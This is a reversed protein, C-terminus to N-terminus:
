SIPVFLLSLFQLLKRSKRLRRAMMRLSIKQQFMLSTSTNVELNPYVEFGENRLERQRKPSPLQSGSRYPPM